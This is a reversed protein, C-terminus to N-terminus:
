QRTETRVRIRSLGRHRRKRRRMAPRNSPVKELGQEGGFLSALSRAVRALSQPLSSTRPLIKQVYHELQAERVLRSQLFDKVGRRLGGEGFSEVLFAYGAPDDSRIESMATDISLESLRHLDVEDLLEIDPDLGAELPFERLLGLCFADITTVHIEYLRERLHTWLKPRARLESLIRARMEGAAKRTFTIALVHRPSAGQEVLRVYRSVLVSTKGTGASAELAVNFRPDSAQRREEADPVSVRAKPFPIPRRSPQEPM